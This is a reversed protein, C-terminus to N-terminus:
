LTSCLHTSPASSQSSRLGWYSRPSPRWGPRKYESSYPSDVTFSSKLRDALQYFWTMASFLIKLESIKPITLLRFSEVFASRLCVIRTYLARHSLINLNSAICLSVSNHVRWLSHSLCPM